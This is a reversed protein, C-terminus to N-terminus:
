LTRVSTLVKGLRELEETIGSVHNIMVQTAQNVQNVWESHDCEKLSAKLLEINAVNVESIIPEQENITDTIYWVHIILSKEKTRKGFASISESITNDSGFIMVISKDGNPGTLALPKYLIDDINANKDKPM